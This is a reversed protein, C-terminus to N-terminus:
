DKLGSLHQLMIQRRARSVPIQEPIGKLHIECRNANGKVTEINLLNVIFSKHVRLWYRPYKNELEGLPIRLLKRKVQAEELFYFESYNDASKIYYLSNVKLSIKESGSESKIEILEDGMKLEAKPSQYLESEKMRLHLKRIYAMMLIFLIPYVGISLNIIFSDMLANPMVFYIREEFRFAAHFFTLLTFLIVVWLIMRGVTRRSEIFYGKFLHPLVFYQFVLISVTIFTHGLFFINRQRFMTGMGFPDYVLKFGVTFSVIVLIIFIKRETTYEWLALPKSLWAKLHQIM